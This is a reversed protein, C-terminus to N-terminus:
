REIIRRLGLGSGVARVTDSLYPSVKEMWWSSQQRAVNRARPIELMALDAEAQTLGKKVFEHYMQQRTLNSQEGLQWVQAALHAHQEPMLVRLREYIDHERARLEAASATSTKTEQEIKPVQVANVLSRSESERTQAHIYDIEASVKALTAATTLAAMKPAVMEHSATGAGSAGTPGGVTGMAGPPSSAGGHAMALMPNLGAAQLDAMARQNASSSMREQFAMQNGSAQSNFDAQRHWFERQFDMQRGAQSAQFDRNLQAQEANLINQQQAAEAANNASISNSLGSGIAGGIQGGYQTGLSSGTAQGASSVNREILLGDDGYYPGDDSSGLGGLFGGIAGGVGPAILNGIASGAIPLVSKLIGDFFGM